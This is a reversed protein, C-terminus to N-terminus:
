PMIRAQIVPIEESLRSLVDSQWVWDGPQSMVRGTLSLRVLVEFEEAGSLPSTEQMAVLDDLRVTFPVSLAPREAVAYPLGGGVPRAIVFM